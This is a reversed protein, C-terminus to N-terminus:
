RAASAAKFGLRRAVGVLAQIKPQSLQGGFAPMAGRGMMVTRELEEPRKVLFKPDAFDRLPMTAKLAPVGRGDAGHCRACHALYLAEHNVPVAVGPDDGPSACAAGLLLAFGLAARATM